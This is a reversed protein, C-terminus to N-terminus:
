ACYTTCQGQWTMLGAGATAFALLRRGAPPAPGDLSPPPAPAPLAATTAPALGLGPALTANPRVTLLLGASPAPWAFFAAALLFGFPLCFMAAWNRPSPQLLNIRDGATFGIASAMGRAGDILSAALLHCGTRLTIGTSAFFPLPMYTQPANANIPISTPMRRLHGVMDQSQSAFAGIFCTPVTSASGVRHLWCQWHRSDAMNHTRSQQQVGTPLCTSSDSSSSAGVALM